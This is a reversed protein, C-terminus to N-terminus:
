NLMVSSIIDWNGDLLSDAPSFFSSGESSLFLGLGGGLGVGTRGFGEAVEAVRSSSLSIAESESKRTWFWRGAEPGVWGATGLETFSPEGDGGPGVLWPLRSVM